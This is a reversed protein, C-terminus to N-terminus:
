YQWGGKSPIRNGDEGRTYKAVRRVTIRNGVIPISHYHNWGKFISSLRCLLAYSSSEGALTQLFNRVQYEIDEESQIGIGSIVRSLYSEPSITLEDISSERLKAKILYHAFAYIHQSAQIEQKHKKALKSVFDVSLALEEHPNLM